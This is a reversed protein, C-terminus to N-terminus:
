IACPAAQPQMQRRALRKVVDSYRLKVAEMEGSEILKAMAYKRTTELLHFHPVAGSADAVILSKAVLKTVVDMMEGDDGPVQDAAVDEVAPLTFGNPFISLRRFVRQEVESLLDHSWDLMAILSRQRPVATRLNTTLLQWDHDLCAAVGRLGFAEIRAAAMGIALPLGDLSRCIEAVISADRDSLEFEGWKSAVHAVFLQVAPFTLAEQASVRRSAPPSGLAPLRYLYEGEARLPERSTALIQVNPAGKLIELALGAAAAIVHECNDLFLLMHRDGLRAILEIVPESSQIEIGLMAALAGPVLKPEHISALDVLWVGHEYRETLQEAIAAAVSTKGVGGPGVITLLRLRLRSLQASLLDVVNARGILRSVPAPLNHVREVGARAPLPEVAEAKVPAVFRYGRGPINVLFRNGGRGDGLARRLATIHVTLNAQEVFTTPWVRAMLEDKSILEGPREVLAILIDLARSGLRVPRGGELLLRQVPLLKFSGFCVASEASSKRANRPASANRRPQPMEAPGEALHSSWFLAQSHGTEAHLSPHQRLSLEYMAM